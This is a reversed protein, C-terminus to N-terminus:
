SKLLVLSIFIHNELSFDQLLIRLFLYFCLFFFFFLILYEGNKSKKKKKVKWAIEARLAVQSRIELSDSSVSILLLGHEIRQGLTLAFLVALNGHREGYRILQLEVLHPFVSAADEFGFAQKLNGNQLQEKLESLIDIEM